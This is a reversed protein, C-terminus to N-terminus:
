KVSKNLNSNLWDLAEKQKKELVETINDYDIDELYKNDLEIDHMRNQISFHQFLTHMRTNMKSFSDHREFIEFYKKFIISFVAAHYSDAFIAHANEFLWLFEIPGIKEYLVSNKDSINIVSLNNDEAFQNIYEKELFSIEGLFYTVIFKRQKAVVENVNESLNHWESASLLMTPDILVSVPKDTYLGIMKQASFERVSIADLQKLGRIFILEEEDNLSEVGISAAYSIIKKHHIDPLFDDIINTRFNPNWIQDSGIIFCDITGDIGKTKFKPVYVKTFSRFLKHRKWQKISQSLKQFNRKELINKFIRVPFIISSDKMESIFSYYNLKSNKDQLTLTQGVYKNLICQLAYNQLRNGFNNDDSITHIALKM